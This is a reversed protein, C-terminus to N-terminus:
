SEGGEDKKSFMRHLRAETDLEEPRPAAVNVPPMSHVIRFGKKKRLLKDAVGESVCQVFGNPNRVFVPANDRPGPQILPNNKM